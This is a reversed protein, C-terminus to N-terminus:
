IRLSARDVAHKNAEMVRKRWRQEGHKGKPMPHALQRTSEIKYLHNLETRNLQSKLSILVVLPEMKRADGPEDVDDGGSRGRGGHRQRAGATAGGHERLNLWWGRWFWAAAELIVRRGMGQRMWQPGLEDMLSAWASGGSFSLDSGMLWGVTEELQPVIGLATHQCMASGMASDIRLGTSSM